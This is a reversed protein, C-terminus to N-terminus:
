IVSQSWWFPTLMCDSLRCEEFSSLLTKVILHFARFYHSLSYMGSLTYRAVGGKAILVIALSEILLTVHQEVRWSVPMLSSWLWSLYLFSLLTQDSWREMTLCWLHSVKQSVFQKLEWDPSSIPVFIQHSQHLRTLIKGCLLRWEVLIYGYSLLSRLRGQLWVRVVLRSERGLVQVLTHRHGVGQVNVWLSM